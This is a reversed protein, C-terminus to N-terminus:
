DLRFGFAHHASHIAMRDLAFTGAIAKKRIPAPNGATLLLSRKGAAGSHIDGWPHKRFKPHYPRRSHDQGPVKRGYPTPTM